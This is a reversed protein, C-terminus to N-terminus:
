AEEVIYMNLYKYAMMAVTSLRFGDAGKAEHNSGSLRPLELRYDTFISSLGCRM